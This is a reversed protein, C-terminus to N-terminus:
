VHDEEESSSTLIDKCRALEYEEIDIDSREEMVQEKAKRRPVVLTTVVAYDRFPHSETPLFGFTDYGPM